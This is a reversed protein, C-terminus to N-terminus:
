QEVEVALERDYVRQFGPNQRYLDEAMSALWDRLPQAAKSDLSSYGAERMRGLAEERYNLYQAISSANANGQARPDSVLEQLQQMTNALKGPDFSAKVPFGNYQAHLRERYGALWELQNRSPYQGAKLRAARYLSSGVRLEASAIIEEGSLAVRKGSDRQRSFTTQDYGEVFPGLFGAVEPHTEFLGKNEREFDGFESSTELGGVTARTKSSTYAMVNEGYLDIFRSVATDYNEQKFKNFEKILFGSYVVGKKTGIKYEAGPAAPGTLQTVARVITVVKALSKADDFMDQRSTPDAPNYKGSAALSRLTDGYTQGFIGSMDNTDADIGAVFKKIWGPVLAGFNDKINSGTGGYPLLFKRAFDADPTDPLLNSAAIQVLPGVGPSVGLGISLGKIPAALSVGSGQIGGKIGGTLFGILNSSLPFNFKYEKTVPDQHFFGDGGEVVTFNTGATFAKQARLVRTPDEIIFKGYSSLVEEWAANFPSIIRFAEQLNNKKTANFLLDETRRLAYASAYTQMQEVTGKARNFETAAVTELNKIIDEDGVYQIMHERNTLNEWKRTDLGGIRTGAREKAAQAAYESVNNLLKQAEEQSLLNFNDALAKYYYQRFVPSKELKLVVGKGYIESFFHRVGRNWLNEKEASLVRQSVVVKKPLFEFGDFNGEANKLQKQALDDILNRLAASGNINDTAGFEGLEVIYFQMRARSEEITGKFPNPVSSHIGYRREKLITKGAKNVDYSQITFVNTGRDRAEMAEDWLSDTKNIVVTEGIPVADFQAVARLPNLEGGKGVITNVKAGSLNEWIRALDDQSVTDINPISHLGITGDPRAVKIGNRFFSRLQEEYKPSKAIYASFIEIRRAQTEYMHETYLKFFPDKFLRRVNEVIGTTHNAADLTRDAIVVEGNKVLKRVTEAKDVQHHAGTSGLRAYDSLDDAFTAFEGLDDAHFIFQKGENFTGIQTNNKLLRIFDMPHSFMGNLGAMAIRLQADLSNRVIYGGTALAAPKWFSGQILDLVDTIPRAALQDPTLVVGVKSVDTVPVRFPNTYMKKLEDFVKPDPLIMTRDLMEVFSGSSVLRADEPSVGLREFVSRPMLGMEHLLKMTGGDYPDGFEDINYARMKEITEDIAQAGTKIAAVIQEQSVGIDRLMLAFLGDSTAGQVGKVAFNLQRLRYADTRGSRPSRMRVGKENIYEVPDTFFNEVEKMLTKAADDTGSLYPDLGNRKLYNAYNLYAQTKDEASGNFAVSLEPKESLWKMRWSRALPLREAVVELGEPTMRSILGPSKIYRLSEPFLIKQDLEDSLRLAKEAIIGLVTDSTEAAALRGADAISLKGKTMELIKLLDKEKVFAEVVRRGQRGNMLKGFSSENFTLRGKEGLGSESLLGRIVGADKLKTTDPIINAAARVGKVAKGVASIPDFGISFAADVIGSIFNYPKTGPTSVVNAADRGITFAHGNIEGRYKRAREGQIERVKESMMYGDGALEGEDMMTGLPTSAWWGDMRGQPAGFPDQITDSISNKLDSAKNAILAPVTQIAADTWRLGAKIPADINALRLAKDVYGLKNLGFNAARIYWPPQKAKDPANAYSVTAAANSMADIAASSANGKALALAAGANMWPAQKYIAALRQANAATINASPGRDNLSTVENLTNENSQADTGYNSM